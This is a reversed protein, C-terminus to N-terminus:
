KIDLCQWVSMLTRKYIVVPIQQSISIIITIESELKISITQIIELIFCVKYCVHVNRNHM